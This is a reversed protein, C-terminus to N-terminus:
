PAPRPGCWDARPMRQVFFHTGERAAIDAVVLAVGSDTTLPKGVRGVGIVTGAPDLLEYEGVRKPGPAARPATHMAFDLLEAKTCGTVLLLLLLVLGRM